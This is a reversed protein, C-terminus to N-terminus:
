EAEVARQVLHCRLGTAIHFSYITKGDRARNGYIHRYPVIHDHLPCGEEEFFLLDLFQLRERLLRASRYGFEDPTGNVFIKM